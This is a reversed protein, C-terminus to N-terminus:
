GDSLTASRWYDPDEYDTPDHVDALAFAEAREVCTGCRGCHRDGGKYCSWTLTWPVGLDEGIRVIQAKTSHIFPAVIGQFNPRSFGTNGVLLAASAAAIFEPRCDPYIFHDGAHTGTAVFEAEEAVAIAGAISLMMMNRNPVVTVKMTAEAYHGDPVDIGDSTLSSTGILDRLDPLTILSHDGHLRAAATAAFDLEKRGHRQGYDFSVLHLDHGQDALYHALTVSDMGGSVIAIVHSGM